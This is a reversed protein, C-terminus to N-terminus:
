KYYKHLDYDCVHHVCVSHEKTNLPTFGYQKGELIQYCQADIFLQVINADLLGGKVESQLVSLARDRPMAPKYPRDAATLADYIDCVTMIRSQLPIEEADLHLPYGSGDLKEHHSGAIAPIDSLNDTWPILRLFDTTHQVHAEIEDREAQNLSGRRISLSLFEQESILGCLAGDYDRVLHSKIRRLHDFMGEELMSPENAEFIWKLYQDLQRCDADRQAEIKKRMEVALGDDSMALKYLQELAHNNLHSKALAVRYSVLECAVPDLKKAKTLVHERVGVKGFDHLLAAYRLERMQDVDFHTKQFVNTSSTDISSAVSECLDAVRFSHGSTVPDRREIAFVSAQVFGDFLTNVSELLRRNEIAVAAQSAMSQLLAISDDDFECLQSPVMAAISLQQGPDIKRNIFELVGVVKGGQDIMPLVILNVSRYGTSIDFSRNFHYPSDEPLQYADKIHLTKATTACYGAISSSDLSLRQEKFPIDTSNNRTLKFLLSPSDGSDDLLFLSAADCGVLGQGEALIKELLHDLDPESSLSIGVQVLRSFSSQKADLNAQIGQESHSISM